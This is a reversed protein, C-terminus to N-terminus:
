APRTRKTACWLISRTITLTISGATNLHYAGSASGDDADNRRSKRASSGDVTTTRARGATEVLSEVHTHRGITGPLTSPRLAACSAGVPPPHVFGVSRSAIVHSRRASQGWNGRQGLVTSCADVHSASILAAAAAAFTAVRTDPKTKSRSPPPSYRSVSAITLATRSASDRYEPRASAVTPMVPEYLISPMSSPTSSANGCAYQIPSSAFVPQM